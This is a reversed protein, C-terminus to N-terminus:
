EQCSSPFVFPNQNTNNILRNGATEVRQALELRRLENTCWTTLSIFNSAWSFSNASVVNLMNIPNHLTITIYYMFNRSLFSVPGPSSIDNSRPTVRKKEKNKKTVNKRVSFRSAANSVLKKLRYWNSVQLHPWLHAWM